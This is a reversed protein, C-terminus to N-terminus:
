SLSVATIPKRLKGSLDCKEEGAIGSFVKSKCETGTLIKVARAYIDRQQITHQLQNINNAGKKEQGRRYFCSQVKNRLWQKAAEKGCLPTGRGNTM